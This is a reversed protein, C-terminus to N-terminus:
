EDDSSFLSGFDGPRRMQGAVADADFQVVMEGPVTRGSAGIVRVHYEPQHFRQSFSGQSWNYEATLATGLARHYRPALDHPLDTVFGAGITRQFLNTRVLAGVRGAGEADGRIYHRHAVEEFRSLNGEFADLRFTWKRHISAVPDFKEDPISNVWEPNLRVRRGAPRLGSRRETFFEKFKARREGFPGREPGWRYRASLLKQGGYTLLSIGVM